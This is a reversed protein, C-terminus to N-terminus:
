PMAKVRTLLMAPFNWSVPSAIAGTAVPDRWVFVIAGELFYNVDPVVGPISSPVPGCKM